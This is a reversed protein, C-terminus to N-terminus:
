DDENKKEEGVTLLYCIEQVADSSIKNLKSRVVKKLDNYSNNKKFDKDKIELISQILDRVTMLDDEQWIM